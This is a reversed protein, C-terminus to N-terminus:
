PIFYAGIYWGPCVAYAQLPEYRWLLGVPSRSIETIQPKLLGRGVTRVIVKRVQSDASSACTDCHNGCM